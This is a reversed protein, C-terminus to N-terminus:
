TRGLEKDIREQWEKFVPLDQPTTFYINSPIRTDVHIARTLRETVANYGGSRIQTLCGCPEGRDFDAESNGSKSVFQFLCHAQAVDPDADETPVCWALEILNPNKTLFEIAIDYKNESTETSNNM